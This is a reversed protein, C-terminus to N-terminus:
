NGELVNVLVRQGDRVAVCSASNTPWSGYGLLSLSPAVTYAGSASLRVFVAAGDPWGSLDAALSAGVSLSLPGTAWGLSSSARAVRQTMDVYVEGFRENVYRITPARIVDTATRSSALETVGKRGVRAEPVNTIDAFDGTYAVAALDPRPVGNTAAAIEAAIDSYTRTQGSDDLGLAVDAWGASDAVAASAAAEAYAATDAYSATGASDAYGASGASSASDASYASVASNASDAYTAYASTGAFYASTDDRWASFVPDFEIPEPPNPSKAWSPVTPDEEVRLLGNTSAAVARDVYGTTAYAALVSAPEAAASGAATGRVYAPGGARALVRGGSSAVATWEGSALPLVADVDLVFAAANGNTATGPTQWSLAADMGNTRTHLAVEAGSIDLPEGGNLFEVSLDVVEGRAVRLPYNRRSDSVDVPLRQVYGAFAPLAALLLPLFIANNM